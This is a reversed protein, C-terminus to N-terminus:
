NTEPYLPILAKRVRFLSDEFEAFSSLMSRFSVGVRLRRVRTWVCWKRFSKCLFLVDSLIQLRRCGWQGGGGGGDKMRLGPRPRFATTSRARGWVFYCPDVPPRSFSASDPLLGARNKQLSFQASVQKSTEAFGVIPTGFLRLGDRDRTWRESCSVTFGPDDRHLSSSLRDVFGARFSCM